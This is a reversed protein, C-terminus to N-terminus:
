DENNWVIELFTRVEVEDEIDDYIDIANLLVVSLDAIEDEVSVNELLTDPDSYKKISEEFMSKFNKFAENIENNNFKHDYLLIKELMTFNDSM